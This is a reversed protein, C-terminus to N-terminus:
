ARSKQSLSGPVPVAPLAACIRKGLLPVSFSHGLGFVSQSVGRAPSHHDLGHPATQQKPAAEKAPAKAEVLHQMTPPAAAPFEEKEIADQKDANPKPSPPQIDPPLAPPQEEVAGPKYGFRLQLDPQLLRFPLQALGRSHRFTISESGIKMVQVSYYNAGTQTTIAQIADGTGGSANLISPAIGLIAVILPIRVRATMRIM